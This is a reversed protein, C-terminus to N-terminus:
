PPATPSACSTAGCSRPPVSPTLSPPPYLALRTRDVGPHAEPCNAIADTEGHWIPNTAARNLGKALVEGTERDVIVAGFPEDPSGRAVEIAWRM